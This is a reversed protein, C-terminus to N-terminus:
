APFMVGLRKVGLDTWGEVRGGAIWPDSLSSVCLLWAVPRESRLDDRSSGTLSAAVSDDRPQVVVFFIVPLFVYPAMSIM